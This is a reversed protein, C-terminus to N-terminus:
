NVPAISEMNLFCGGNAIGITHQHYPVTKIWAKITKSQKQMLIKQSWMLLTCKLLSVSFCFLPLIVKRWASPRPLCLPLIVKRWASPRHLSLPLIVKRWASPRPLCLPLIVKRWASPTPLCLPLIVKGELVQGPYVSHCSLKGELVQSPHVSGTLVTNTGSCAPM